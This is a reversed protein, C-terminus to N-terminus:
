MTPTTTIGAVQGESNISQPLTAISGNPDFSVVNGRTERVFAHSVFNNDFYYGAIEGEANIATPVTERSGAPDFETLTGKKEYFFGHLLRAADFFYAAIQGESNIAQPTLGSNALGVMTFSGNRQRLFGHGGTADFYFGVIQDASNIAQAQTFTSGPPDIVTIKQARRASVLGVIVTLWLTVQAM